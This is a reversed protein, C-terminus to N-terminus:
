LMHNRLDCDRYLFICEVAPSTWKLFPQEAKRKDEAKSLNKPKM